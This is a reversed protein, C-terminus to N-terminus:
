KFSGGCDCQFGLKSLEAERRRHNRNRTCHLWQPMPHREPKQHLNIKAGCVHEELPKQCPVGATEYGCLDGAHKGKHKHHKHCCSIVIKNCYGGEPIEHKSFPHPHAGNICFYIPNPM